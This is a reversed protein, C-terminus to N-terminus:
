KPIHTIMEEQLPLKTTPLGEKMLSSMFLFLIFLNNVLIYIEAEPLKYAPDLDRDDRPM